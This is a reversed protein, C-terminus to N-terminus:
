LIKGVAAAGAWFRRDDSSPDCPDFSHAFRNATHNGTQTSGVDLGPVRKMESRELRYRQGLDVFGNGLCLGKCEFSALGTM